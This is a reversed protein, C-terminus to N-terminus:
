RFRVAGDIPTLKFGIRRRRMDTLANRRFRLAFGSKCFLRRDRRCASTRMTKPINDDGECQMWPQPMCETMRWSAELLRPYPILNQYGIKGAIMIYYLFYQITVGAVALSQLEKRGKTQPLHPVFLLFPDLITNPVAAHGPSIGHCTPRSDLNQGSKASGIYWM